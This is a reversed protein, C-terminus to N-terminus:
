RAPLSSLGCRRLGSRITRSGSRNAYLAADIAAGFAVGAVGAGILFSRRDLWSTSAPQRPPVLPSPKRM